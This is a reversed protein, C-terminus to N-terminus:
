YIVHTEAGKTGMLLLRRKIEEEDPFEGGVRGYFYVLNNNGVALKVDQVMQGASLEVALFYVGRSALERFAAKPFPWLRTLRVLGAKEGDMRLEDVCARALRSTSGYAVFVREADDCMYLEVDTENEVIRAYKDQLRKVHNELSNEGERLLLSKISQAERGKCGTLAWPKPIKGPTPGISEDFEIPEMLQALMGDALIMVPTRYTDALDFSKVTFDFMEQVSNPSLVITHYDGHGGGKVAQFYDQQSGSINGLGPGGRMMNVVLCPLECGALYSMCEQKLSMGPGSSSTMARAGAVAAGFVMNVAALESEAQIFTGGVEEMRTAMFTALESQPTIPYGAFFVCGARIAAEGCAENGTFLKRVKM